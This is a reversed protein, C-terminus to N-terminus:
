KQPVIFMLSLSRATVPTSKRSIPVSLTYQAPADMMGRAPPTAGVSVITANASFSPRWSKQPANWPTPFQTDSGRPRHPDLQLSRAEIPQIDGALAGAQQVIQRGAARRLGVAVTPDIAAHRAMAVIVWPRAMFM